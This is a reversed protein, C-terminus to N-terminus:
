AKSRLPQPSPRTLYARSGTGIAKGMRIGACPQRATERGLHARFFTFMLFKPRPDSSHTHSLVAVTRGGAPM